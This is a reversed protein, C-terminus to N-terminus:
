EDTNSERRGDEKELLKGNVILGALAAPHAELAEDVLWLAVQHQGINIHTGLPEGTAPTRYLGCHEFMRWFFRKGEDTSLIKKLDEVEQNLKNKEGKSM